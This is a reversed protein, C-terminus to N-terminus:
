LKFLLYANCHMGSAAMYRHKQINLTALASFYLFPWLLQVAVIGAVFKAFCCFQLKLPIVGLM